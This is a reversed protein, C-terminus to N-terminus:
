PKPWVYPLRGDADPVAPKEDWGFQGYWEPDKYLLAARHSSHLDEDGIWEPYVLGGAAKLRTYADTYYSTWRVCVDYRWQPRRQWMELACFLGYLALGAHHNKWMCAAPHRAWGGRLLTLCERYCQNGLRKSDLVRASEAFSDFPLFTQM